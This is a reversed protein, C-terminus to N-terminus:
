IFNLKGTKIVPMVELYVEYFDYSTYPQCLITFLDNTLDYNTPKVTREFILESGFLVGTESM